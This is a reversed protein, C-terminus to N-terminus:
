RKKEEQKESSIMLMNNDIEVKFDEKKMRPTALDVELKNDTEKLNISTYFFKKDIWDFIDRTFIDDFITNVSSDFNNRKVLTKM